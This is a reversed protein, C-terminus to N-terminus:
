RGSRDSMPAHRGEPVSVRIGDVDYRVPRCTRNGGRDVWGASAWYEIDFGCHRCCTQDGDHPEAARDRQEEVRQREQWDLEAAVHSRAQDHLSDLVDLVSTGGGARRALETADAIFRKVAVEGLADVTAQVMEQPTPVPVRQRTM